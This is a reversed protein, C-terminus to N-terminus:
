KSLGLLESVLKRRRHFLGYELGVPYSHPNLIRKQSEDLTALQEKCYAQAIMADRYEEKLVVKGGRALPELLTVFRKGKLDKQRLEDAPDVIYELAVGKNIDFVMDGALLGSEHYYRRVDLVGPVTLKAAQGSVKVCDEWPGDGKRKAALKYVGGLAPQDYATALKTGVGWSTVKAGSDKISKITYEDLDNSLVIGTDFLGAEDLMKRAEIARWSLDGSDIRIAALHEGREKMELGVTIANKIGQTIDYTDVLLVCNKPMIEAYARFAEIESDFSMVWSHAHTGSVPINFLQGALVNSTSACGGVIAARSARVGGSEGQARRLGFEAVPTEAALCVRAAKTAILTEFNICNLLATEILQCQLIPGTVRVLPDNPFVVTGERVAEIDIELKLNKLYALFDPNFLKGGGPANLSALYAIDEGSFLFEEIMEAIHSMGCAIAFGGDFPNDRFFAHFCAQEDLKSCEWYGQAMTLQYLDTLLAYNDTKM